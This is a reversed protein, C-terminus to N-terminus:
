GDGLLLSTKSCRYSHSSERVSLVQIFAVFDKGTVREVRAIATAQPSERNTTVPMRAKAPGVSELQDVVDEGAWRRSEVAVVVV